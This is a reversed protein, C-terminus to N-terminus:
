SAALCLEIGELRREVLDFRRDLRGLAALILAGNDLAPVHRLRGMHIALTAHARPADTLSSAMVEFDPQPLVEERVDAM